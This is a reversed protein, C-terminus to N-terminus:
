FRECEYREEDKIWQCGEREHSHRYEEPKWARVIDAADARVQEESHVALSGYPENKDASYVRHWTPLKSMEEAIGETILPLIADLVFAATLRNMTGPVGYDGTMHYTTGGVLANAGAEILEDRTV